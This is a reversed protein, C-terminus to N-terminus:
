DCVMVMLYVLMGIYMTLLVGATVIYWIWDEVKMIGFRMAVRIIGLVAIVVAIVFATACVWEYWEM